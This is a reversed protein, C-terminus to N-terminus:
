EPPDRQAVLDTKDPPDKLEPHDQSEKFLNVMKELPVLSELTEPLDQLDM